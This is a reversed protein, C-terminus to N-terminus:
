DRDAEIATQSEHQFEEHKKRKAVFSLCVIELMKCYKNFNSQCLGVNKSYKGGMIVAEKFSYKVKRAKKQLMM